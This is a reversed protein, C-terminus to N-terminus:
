QNKSWAYAAYIDAGIIPRYKEWVGTTATVFANREEDSLDRYRIIEMGLKELRDPYDNAFDLVVKKSAKEANFAATEVIRRENDNLRSWALSSLVLMNANVTMSIQTMHREVEYLGVDYVMSPVLDEGDIVGNELSSYLESFPIVTTNAGLARFMDSFIDGEMVRLTLGKVDAPSRVPRKTNQIGRFDGSFTAVLRADGHKNVVERLATAFPSDGGAIQWFEEIDRFAFPLNYAYLQPWNTALVNASLASADLTGSLIKSLMEPEGGLLGASFYQFKVMGGTQKEVESIFSRIPYSLFDHPSGSGLSGFRFVIPESRTASEAQTVGTMTMASSIIVLLVVSIRRMFAGWM